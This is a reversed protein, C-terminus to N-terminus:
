KNIDQLVISLKFYFVLVVIHQSKEKEGECSIISSLIIIPQSTVFYYYHLYYDHLYADLGIIKASVARM